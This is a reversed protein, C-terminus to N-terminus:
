RGSKGGGGFHTLRGGSRVHSVLFPARRTNRNPACATTAPPLLFSQAPCARAAGAHPLSWSRRPTRAAQSQWFSFERMRWPIFSDSQRSSLFPGRLRLLACAETRARGGTQSRGLCAPIEAAGRGALCM